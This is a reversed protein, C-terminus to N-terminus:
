IIFLWSFDKLLTLSLVPSPQRLAIIHLLSPLFLRNVTHPSQWGWDLNGRERFGLHLIRSLKWIQRHLIVGFNFTLISSFNQLPSFSCRVCFKYNQQNKPANIKIQTCPNILLKEIKISYNVEESFIWKRSDSELKLASTLFNEGFSCM